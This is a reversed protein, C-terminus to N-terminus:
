YNYTDHMATQLEAIERDDPSSIKLLKQLKMNQIYYYEDVYHMPSCGIKHLAYGLPDELAPLIKAKPLLQELKLEIKRTVEYRKRYLEQYKFDCLKGEEDVYRDAFRFENIIINEEEYKSKIVEVFKKVCEEWYEDSLSFVSKKVINDKGAQANITKEASISDCIYTDSGDEARMVYVDNRCDCTDIMLYKSKFNENFYDQVKKRFELVAMRKTFNSSGFIQSEDIAAPKQLFTHVPNQLIYSGVKIKNTFNFLERSVCSGWIDIIPIDTKYSNCYVRIYDKAKVKISSSNINITYLKDEQEIKLAKYVAPYVLQMQTRLGESGDLLEEDTFSIMERDFGLYVLIRIALEKVVSNIPHNFSHWLIKSWGFKNIFDTMAIDCQLEKNKLLEIQKNFNEIIEEATLFESGLILDSIDEFTYGKALFDDIYKDGYAFVPQKGLIVANEEKEKFQPFYGTFHLVPITIFQTGRKESFISKLTNTALKETFRNKESILQSICLDSCNIAIEYLMEAEHNWHHIRPLDIYCYKSSFEENALLYKQLIFTQCNGNIFFLKRGYAFKRMLEICAVDDMTLRKLTNIDIADTSMLFLLNFDDFLKLGKATLYQVREEWPESRRLTILIKASINRYKDLYEDINCSPVGKWAATKSEKDNSIFYDIEYYNSLQLYARQSDLTESGWLVFHTHKPYCYNM